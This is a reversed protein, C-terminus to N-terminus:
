SGSVPALLGNRGAKAIALDVVLFRAAYGLLLSLAAGVTGLTAGLPYITLLTVVLSAVNAQALRSREGLAIAVQGGIMSVYLLGAGALIVAGTRADPAVGKTFVFGVLGPAVFYGFAIMVPMALGLLQRLRRRLNLSVAGITGDVKANALVPSIAVRAGVTLIAGAHVFFSLTGIQALASPGVVLDTGVRGVSPQGINAMASGGLMLDQGFGVEPRVLKAKQKRDLFVARASAGAGVVWWLAALLACGFALGRDTAYGVSVAALSSLGLVTDLQSPLFFHETRARRGQFATVHIQALNSLLIWIGVWRSGHGTLSWGAIGLAGVVGSTILMRQLRYRYRSPSAETAFQEPLQLGSLFALPTAVAQALLFDATDAVGGQRTIM